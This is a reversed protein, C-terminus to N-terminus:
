TFCINIPEEEGVCQHWCIFTNESFEVEGVYEIHENKEEGKKERVSGCMNKARKDVSCNRM